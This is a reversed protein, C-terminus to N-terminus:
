LELKLEKENFHEVTYTQVELKGKKWEDPSLAAKMCLHMLFEEKTTIDEWVQPLFTSAHGGLRIILGQVNQQIKALLDEAGNYILKEPKSLVSIEVEISNFEGKSLPSFRPDYFAASVANEKVTTEITERPVIQGICGRLNDNITITVFTGTIQKVDESAIDSKANKYGSWTIGLKSAIQRRALNLLFLKDEKKM